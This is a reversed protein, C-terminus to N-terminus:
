WPRIRRISSKTYFFETNYLKFYKNFGKQYTDINLNWARGQAASWKYAIREQSYPDNSFGQYNSNVHIYEHGM